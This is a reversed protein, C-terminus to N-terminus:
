FDDHRGPYLTMLFPLFFFRTSPKRDLMLYLHGTFTGYCTLQEDEVDLSRLYDAVRALEVWGPRTRFSARTLRDKMQPTSGECVCQKWLAVRGTDFLISSQWAMLLLALPALLRLFARPQVLVTQYVLVFALLLPPLLHYHNGFQLFAAQFLW